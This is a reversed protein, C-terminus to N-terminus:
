TLPETGAPCLGSGHPGPGPAGAVTELFGSTLQGLVLDLPETLPQGGHPLLGSVQHGGPDLQSITQNGFALPSLVRTVPDLVGPSVRAPSGALDAIEGALQGHGPLLTLVPVGLGGPLAGLQGSESGLQGGGAGRDLGPFGVARLSEDALSGAVLFRDAVQAGRKTLGSM